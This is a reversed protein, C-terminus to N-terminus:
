RSLNPSYRKQMKPM